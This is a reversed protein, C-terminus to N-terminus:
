GEQIDLFGPGNGEPDCLVFVVKKITKRNQRGEATFGWYEGTDDVAGGTITLGTLDPILRDLCAQAYKNPKSM